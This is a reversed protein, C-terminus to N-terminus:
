TPEVVFKSPSLGPAGTPLPVEPPKSTWYFPGGTAYTKPYVADKTIDFMLASRYVVVKQDAVGRYWGTMIDHIVDKFAPAAKEAAIALEQASEFHSQRMLTYLQSIQAKREPVAQVIRAYLASGIAPSLTERDTLRLSLTLFQAAETVDSSVAPQPEAAQATVSAVAAGMGALLVDRRSMRLMRNIRMSNPSSHHVDVPVCYREAAM